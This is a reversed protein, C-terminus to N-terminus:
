RLIVSRWRPDTEAGEGTGGDTGDDPLDSNPTKECSPLMMAASALLMLALIFSIVKKM